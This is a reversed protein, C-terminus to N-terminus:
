CLRTDVFLRPDVVRGFKGIEGSAMLAPLRVASDFMTFLFCIRIQKRPRPKAKTANRVCGTLMLVGAHPRPKVAASEPINSAFSTKLFTDTDACPSARDKRLAADAQRPRRRPRANIILAILHRLPIRHIGQHQSAIFSTTRQSLGHPAAFLSQDASTRIPFGVELCWYVTPPPASRDPNV